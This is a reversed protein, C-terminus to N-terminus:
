VVKNKNLWFDTAEDWLKLGRSNLFGEKFDYELSERGEFYKFEFPKYPEIDGLKGRVANKKTMRLIYEDESEKALRLAWRGGYIQNPNEEESAKAYAATQSRVTNYLGNSTKFDGVCTVGDVIADFDMTGIYEGSRSYVVRESSLFKVEHANFWDLFANVGLLTAKDVPLIPPIEYGDEKLTYKIFYECWEHMKNGIESAEDKIASHRSIAVRVDDMTITEGREIMEMLYLGAMETAWPVLAMSKDKIGLYTTTGKVTKKDLGMEPDTVKYKHSNPYFDVEVKGNYLSFKNILTKEAM